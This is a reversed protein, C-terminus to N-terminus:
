VGACVFCECLVGTPGLQRRKLWSVTVSAQDRHLVGFADSVYTDCGLAALQRAFADDNAGEGGHFRLNELLCAQKNM